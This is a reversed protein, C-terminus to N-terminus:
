WLDGGTAAPALLMGRDPDRRGPETGRPRRIRGAHAIGRTLDPPCGQGVGAGPVHPQEISSFAPAADPEPALVVPLAEGDARRQEPQDDTALKSNGGSLDLDVAGARGTTLGM